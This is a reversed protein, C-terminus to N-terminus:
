EESCLSNNLEVCEFVLKRYVYDKQFSGEINSTLKLEGIGIGSKGNLKKDILKSLYDNRNETVKPVNDVIM